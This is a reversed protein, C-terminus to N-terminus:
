EQNFFQLFEDFEDKHSKTKFTMIVTTGKGSESIIELEDVFSEIITFGMGTCKQENGTTFLPMKAREIDAIGCGWDKVTITVTNDNYSYATVSIKGLKGPYAHIIANIIAEHTALRIDGIKEKRAEVQFVFKEVSELAIPENEIVSPFEVKMYNTRKHKQGKM